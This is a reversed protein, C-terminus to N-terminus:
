VNVLRHKIAFRTLGAVDRIDLKQIINKRHFDVTRVSLYLREAIQKSSYGEAILQLIEVERKTLIPVSRNLDKQRVKRYYDDVVLSSISSSLYREGSHVRRVAEILEEKISDKSLYGSVGAQLAQRVYEEKEYQTLVIVKGCFGDALVRQTAEIGNVQPMSIDMIVVDPKLEGIQKIADAGDVAQGIVNIDACTSLLAAIGERVIAHDEAILLRIV